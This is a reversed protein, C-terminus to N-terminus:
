VTTSQQPQTKTMHPPGVIGVRWPRQWTEVKGKGLRRKPLKDARWTGQRRFITNKRANQLNELGEPPNGPNM